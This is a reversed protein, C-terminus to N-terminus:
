DLRRVRVLTDCSNARALRLPHEEETSQGTGFGIQIANIEYRAFTFPQAPALFYLKLKREHSFRQERHLARTV